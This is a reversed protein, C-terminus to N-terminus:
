PREGHFARELMPMLATESVPKPNYYSNRTAQQAVKPLDSAELGLAALNDAIGLRGLLDFVAGPVEQPAVSMARGLAQMARPAHGANFATVQPIMVSHVEAHPLNFAGGLTHCLKHHLAMGVAGLVLGALWAGYFCETRYQLNGPQEALLPLYHSLVRVGEEAALATIPDLQEAYLGEVCHALANMGSPGAVAAPLSQSLEPDYLTAAPLVKPDKGTTKVRNETLGWITTMESGSFTTPLALYPLGAKLAIAKALGITSGGGIAICGDARTREAEALAEDVTEVPVHMAARDFYGSVRAALPEAVQEALPRQRPTSLVLLRELGLREAENALQHRVGEGFQVRMPLPAYLFQRM